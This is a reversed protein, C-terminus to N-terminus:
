HRCVGNLPRGERIATRGEYYTRFEKPTM